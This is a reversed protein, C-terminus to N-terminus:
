SFMYEEGKKVFVADGYKAMEEESVDDQYHMFYLKSKELVDGYYDVVDDIFSHVPMRIFSVDHFLAQTNGDIKEKLGSKEHQAIDSSFLINKKSPATIKLGMSKMGKLHLHDTKLLEIEYDGIMFRNEYGCEVTHVIFYDDITLGNNFLGKGVVEEFERRMEGRIWLNPKHKYLAHCKQAYEELGGVHDSHLHTIIIDTIETEQHGAAKLSYRLTTGADILLTREGMFVLYNNHYYKTFAGGVGLPKIKLHIREKLSTHVNGMIYTFLAPLGYPM